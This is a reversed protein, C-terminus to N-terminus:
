CCMKLNVSVSYDEQSRQIKKAGVLDTSTLALFITLSILPIPKKNM